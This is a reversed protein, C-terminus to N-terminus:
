VPSIVVKMPIWVKQLRIFIYKALRDDYGTVIPLPSGAHYNLGIAIYVDWIIQSIDWIARLSICWCISAIDSGVNDRSWHNSDLDPDPGDQHCFSSTVSAKILQLSLWIGRNYHKSSNCGRHPFALCAKGPVRSVKCWIAGVFMQLDSYEHINGVGLLGRGNQNGIVIVWKLLFYGSHIHHGFGM